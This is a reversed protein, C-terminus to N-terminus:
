LPDPTTLRYLGVRSSEAVGYWPWAVIEWPVAVNVSSGSDVYTGCSKRGDVDVYMMGLKSLTEETAPSVTTTATVMALPAEMEPVSLVLVPETSL